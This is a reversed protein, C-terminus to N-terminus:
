GLVALAEIELPAGLPLGAVAICTRAPFPESFTERYVENMAAFDAMDTLFVTVKVVDGVTAGGAALVAIVNDLAQRAAARIDGRVMEGTAPSAPLQGSTALIQGARVGQSYPGVARPARETVIRQRDM